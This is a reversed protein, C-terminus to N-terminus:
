GRVVYVFDSDTANELWDRVMDKKRRDNAKDWATDLLADMDLHSIIEDEHQYANSALWDNVDDWETEIEGNVKLYRIVSDTMDNKEMYHIIASEDCLLDTEDVLALVLQGMGGADCIHKALENMDNPTEAFTDVYQKLQSTISNLLWSRMADLQKRAKSDGDIVDGYENRMYRLEAELEAIRISNSDINIAPVNNNTLTEMTNNNTLTEM